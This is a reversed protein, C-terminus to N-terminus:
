HLFLFVQSSMAESRRRRRLRRRRRRRRIKRRWEKSAGKGRKGGRTRQDRINGVKQAEVEQRSSGIGKM